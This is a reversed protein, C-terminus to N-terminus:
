GAKGLREGSVSLNMGLFDVKEGIKGNGEIPNRPPRIELDHQKMSPDSPILKGWTRGFATAEQHKGDSTFPM